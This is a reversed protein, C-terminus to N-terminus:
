FTTRALQQNSHKLSFWDLSTPIGLSPILQVSELITRFLYCIFACRNRARKRRRFGSRKLGQYGPNPLIQTLSTTMEPSLIARLYGSITRVMYPTSAYWNDTWKRWWFGSGTLVQNYIKSSFQNLLTPIDPSLIHRVTELTTCILNPIFAYWNYM